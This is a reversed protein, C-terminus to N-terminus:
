VGATSAGWRGRCGAVCVCGANHVTSESLVRGASSGVHTAAACNPQINADRGRTRSPCALARTVMISGRRSRTSVSVSNTMMAILMRPTTSHTPMMAQMTTYLLHAVHQPATGGAANCATCTDAARTRAPAHTVLDRQHSACEREVCTRAVGYAHTSATALTGRTPTGHQGGCSGSSGRESAVLAAPVGCCRRRRRGHELRLLHGLLVALVAHTRWGRARVGRVAVVGVPWRRGHRIAVRVARWGTGLAVLHRRLQVAPQHM